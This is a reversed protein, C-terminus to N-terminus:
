RRQWVQRWATSKNQYEFASWIIEPGCRKTIVAYNAGRVSRLYVKTDNGRRSDVNISDPNAIVSGAMRIANQRTADGTHNKTSHRIGEQTLYIRKGTFNEISYVITQKTKKNAVTGDDSKESYEFPIKKGYDQYDGNLHKEIDPLEGQEKEQELYSKRNVVRIRGRCIVHFPPLGKGQSILDGLSSSMMETETASGSIYRDKFEDVPLALASEIIEDAASVQVIRGDAERCLACTIRDMVEMVELEKIGSQRMQRIHAFTRVRTVGTDIIRRVHLDSNNAWENGFEDLVADTAPLGKEMVTDRLFGTLQNKFDQNQVYDSFYIDDLRSLFDQARVDPQQLSTMIPKEDGWLSTDTLRYFKYITQINQKVLDALGAERALAPYRTTITSYVENVFGEVDSPLQGQANRDKLEQMIEQRVSDDLKIINGLYADIYELRQNEIKQEDIILSVKKKDHTHTRGMLIYKGDKFVFRASQSQNGQSAAPELPPYGLDERAEDLKIIGNIYLNTKSTEKIQQIEAEEKPKLQANPNFEVNVDEVPIGALWLDLLYIKEIGRRVIRRINEIERILKNYVVGAYTETTSYTRGLMAPDTGMGSALQQENSEFLDKVGRIDSAVAFHKLEVEDYTIMVGDRYNKTLDSAVDGLYTRLRSLYQEDTETTKRPPTALVAHILGLLGIKKMVFRINESMFLQNLLPSIAALMPPIAYPSNRRQFLPSYYYTLPNLKIYDLTSSGTKQYPLYDDELSDYKFVIEHHPVIIIKKVGKLDPQIVAEISPAGFIAIDSLMKNVLGDTGGYPYITRALQNLRDEAQKITSEQVAIVKLEHGTNGLNIINKTHQSLDPIILAFREIAQIINSPIEPDLFAWDGQFRNLIDLSSERSIRGADVPLKVPKSSQFRYFLKQFINM